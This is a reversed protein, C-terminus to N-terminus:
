QGASLDCGTVGRGPWDGISGNWVIDGSAFLQMAQEFSLSKQDGEFRAIPNEKILRFTGNSYEFLVNDQGMIFDGSHPGIVNGNAVEPLLNNLGGHSACTHRGGHYVVLPIENLVRQVNPNGADFAPAPASVVPLTNLASQDVKVLDPQASIWVQGADSKVLLWSGDNNRGIITVQSNAPVSGAVAYGTGPGQRLNLNALTQATVTVNEKAGTQTTEASDNGAAANAGGNQIAGSEEADELTAFSDAESESQDPYISTEGAPTDSNCAASSFLVFLLMAFVLMFGSIFGSTYRM